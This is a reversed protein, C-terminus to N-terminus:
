ISIRGWDPIIGHYYLSTLWMHNINNSDWPSEPQLVGEAGRAQLVLVWFECEFTCFVYFNHIVTNAQNHMYIYMKQSIWKEKEQCCESFSFFYIKLFSFETKFNRISMYWNTVGSVWLLHVHVLLSYFYITVSIIRTCKVEKITLTILSCSQVKYKPKVTTNYLWLLLESLM